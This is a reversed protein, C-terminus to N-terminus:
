NAHFVIDINENEVGINKFYELNPPIYMDGM